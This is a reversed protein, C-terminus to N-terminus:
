HNSGRDIHGFLGLILGRVLLSKRKSVLREVQYLKAGHKYIRKGKSATEFDASFLNNLAVYDLDKSRVSQTINNQLRVGEPM